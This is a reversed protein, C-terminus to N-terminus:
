EDILGQKKLEEYKAKLFSELKKWCEECFYNNDDDTGYKELESDFRKGCSECPIFDRGSDEMCEVEELWYDPEDCDCTYYYLFWYGNKDMTAIQSEFHPKEWIAIVSKDIEPKRKETKIKKYM